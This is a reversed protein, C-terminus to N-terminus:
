MTQHQSAFYINLGNIKWGLGSRELTIEYTLAGGGDALHAKVLADATTMTKEMYIIDVSSTPSVMDMIRAIAQKEDDSSGVWYQSTDSNSSNAAFMDTITAEQSPIGFGQTFAVVGAGLALILVIVIILTVKLGTHKLKREGKMQNKSMEVLDAETTDFFGTNQATPVNGAGYAITGDPQVVPENSANILAQDGYASQYYQDSIAAVPVAGTQQQGSSFQLAKAYDAQAATSLSYSGDVLAKGFADVAEQYREVSTLAQGLSELTKNKIAAPPNFDFIANYSEIADQPRGLVMFCSGLSLLAKTPNPNREDLAANRYATGADITLGLKSYANGLGLQAQYPKAYSPDALAANFSTV